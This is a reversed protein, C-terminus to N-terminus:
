PHKKIQNSDGTFLITQVTNAQPHTENKLARGVTFDNGM